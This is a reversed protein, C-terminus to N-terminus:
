TETRALLFSRIQAKTVELPTDDEALLTAKMSAPLTSLALDMDLSKLRRGITDGNLDLRNEIFEEVQAATADTIRVVFMRSYFGPKGPGFTGGEPGDDDIVDVVDGRRWLWRREAADASNWRHNNNRRILLLCGM